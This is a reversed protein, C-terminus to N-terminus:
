DNNYLIYFTAVVKARLYYFSNGLINFKISYMLYTSLIFTRFKKLISEKM